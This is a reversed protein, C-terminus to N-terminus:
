RLAHFMTIVDNDEQLKCTTYRFIGGVYSIPLHFLIESVIKGNGQNLKQQIAQKLDHLTTCQTIEIPKPYYLYCFLIWPGHKTERVEGNNYVVRFIHSSSM